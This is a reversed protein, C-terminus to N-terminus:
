GRKPPANGGTGPAPQPHPQPASQPPASRPASQPTSRPASQPAPTAHQPRSSPQPHSTAPPRSQVPPRAPYSAQGRSSANRADQGRGVGDLAHPAPEPYPRGTTGPAAPPKQVPRAGPAYSPRPATQNGTGPPANDAHPPPRPSGRDGPVAGAGASPPRGRYERRIDPTTPAGPMLNFQQRLQPNRYAVGRRHEPDHQWGGGPPLRPNVNRYYFSNRNVINAHRVRWDIGGFFFGFGISIGSGWYYGYGYGPRAYYGPWAAWRMPAYGPWWWNGYIVLPDYYPVYIIDPVQPEIVYTPGDHIVRVQENSQLNGAANARQRLGQVTDWLQSEQSLFANGLRETWDLSNDLLELVQPFAVLSKVSPDWNQSDVARVAQDGQLGPNARAWRAAQVVELPYTSAMLIQTLLADPYLAIPALMQDLEQQTFASADQVVQAPQGDQATAVPLGALLFVSTALFGSLIQRAFVKMRYEEFFWHSSDNVAKTGM